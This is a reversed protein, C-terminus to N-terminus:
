PPLQDLTRALEIIEAAGFTHSSSFSLSAPLAQRLADFRYITGPNAGSVVADILIVRGASKWIEILRLGDGHCTLLQAGPLGRAKLAEVAAPGVGDDSRLPNGMGIVLMGPRSSSMASERESESLTCNCFTRPAPSVPTM